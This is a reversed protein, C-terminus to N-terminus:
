AIFTVLWTAFHMWAPTSLFRWIFPMDMAALLLVGIGFAPHLRRQRWTDYAVCAYLLLLDLGFLGGSGGTKLFLLAPVHDFPIRALGPGIM